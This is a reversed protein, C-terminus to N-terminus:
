ASVTSVTQATAGLGHSHVITLWKSGDGIVEIMGGIKENATSFAIGDAVDNNLGIMTDATGATITMSTDEAVTSVSYFGYWLGKEATDPLTFVVDDVSGTTTFLTGNDAETVTYSTTKAVIGRWGGMPSGGLKDDFTFRPHMQARIIHESANGSLGYSASPPVLLNRAKVAGGVMIWGVWRDAATGLRQMKQAYSLVGLAYEIGTEGAGPTDDLPMWADGTNMKGMIMGPRLVDTYGVNGVDLSTSDIVAGLYLQREWRGWWFVNEVTELASQIGPLGFAGTFEFAM